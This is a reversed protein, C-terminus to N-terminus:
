YKQYSANCEQSLIFQVKKINPNEAYIYKDNKKLVQNITYILKKKVMAGEFIKETIDLTEDIPKGTSTLIREM